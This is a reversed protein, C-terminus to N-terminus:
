PAAKGVNPLALYATMSVLTQLESNNSGQPTPRMVKIDLKRFAANPTNSVVSKINFNIGASNKSDSLENLEGVPPLRGSTRVVAGTLAIRDEAVWTALTRLKTENASDVAISAARVAAALAIALVALAILVEILTFARQQFSRQQFGRLHHKALMRLPHKACM